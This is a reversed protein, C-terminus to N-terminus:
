GRYVNPSHQFECESRYCQRPSRNPMSVSSPTPPPTYLTHEHHVSVAQALTHITISHSPILEKGM